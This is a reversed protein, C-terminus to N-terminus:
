PIELISLIYIKQSLYGDAWCNFVAMFEMFELIGYVKNYPMTAMKGM